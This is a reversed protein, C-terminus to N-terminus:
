ATRCPIIGNIKLKGSRVYELLEPNSREKVQMYRHLTTEGVGAEAALAERVNATDLKPKSSPSLPKEDGKKPRGGRTLNRQAKERLMEQKMLAIEIRAVDSLNRRSLQNELIWVKAAERSPLDLEVVEFEIGHKECIEFRNHGDIIIGDWLIIADHCKRAALINQELQNREDDHLPPILGKFEPDVLPLTHM